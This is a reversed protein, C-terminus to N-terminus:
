SCYTVITKDHPLEGARNAVEKTPIVKAGRIHRQDFAPQNRVDVVVAQNQAILDQLENVTIRRVGDAHATEKPQAKADGKNVAPLSSASRDTSNCAALAVAILVVLALLGHIRM